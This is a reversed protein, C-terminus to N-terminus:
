SLMTGFGFSSTETHFLLDVSFRSKDRHSVSVIVLIAIETGTPLILHLLYGLLNFLEIDISERYGDNARSRRPSLLAPLDNGLLEANGLLAGDEILAQPQVAVVTGLPVLDFLEHFVIDTFVGDNETYGVEIKNRGHSRM